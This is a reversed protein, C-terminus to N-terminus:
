KSRDVIYKALEGLYRTAENQPLKNLADMAKQIFHEATKEADSKASTKEVLETVKAVDVDTVDNPGELLDTIFKKGEDDLQEM